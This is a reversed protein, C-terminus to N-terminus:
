ASHRPVMKVIQKANAEIEPDHWVIGLLKGYTNGIKVIGLKTLYTSVVTQLDVCMDM